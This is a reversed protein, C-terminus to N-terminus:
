EAKELWYNDKFKKGKTLELIKMKDNKDIKYMEIISNIEFESPLRNEFFDFLENKKYEIRKLDFNGIGYCGNTIAGKLEQRNIIFTYMSNEYNLMGLNFTKNDKSKWFLNLKGLKIVM